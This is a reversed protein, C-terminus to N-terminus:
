TIGSLLRLPLSLSVAAARIPTATSLLTPTPRAMGGTLTFGEITVAASNTISVVSGAGGADVISTRSVRSACAPTECGGLLTLSRTIVLNENYTAKTVRITTCAPNNIAAQITTYNGGGGAAVSCDAAQAPKAVLALLLGALVVLALGAVPATIITWYKTKM